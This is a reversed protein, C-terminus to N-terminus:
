PAKPWDPVASTALSRNRYSPDETVEVADRLKDPLAYKKAKRLSSFEREFIVLGKHRGGYVDLEGDEFAYRRKEIRRGTTHPWLIEFVWRPIRTEFEDRARGGEGKVTLTHRSGAKRIRLEGGAAVLYGQRIEVGDKRPLRPAKPVRYKREIERAM